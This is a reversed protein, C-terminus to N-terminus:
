PSKVAGVVIQPFMGPKNLGKKPKVIPNDNSRSVRFNLGRLLIERYRIPVSKGMIYQHQVANIQSAAPSGITCNNWTIICLVGTKFVIIGEPKM